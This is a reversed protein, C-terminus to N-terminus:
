RYFKRLVLLLGGHLASMVALSLVLAAAFSLQRRLLLPFVLLFAATPLVMWGISASLRAVQETNGRTEWHLFGLALLSNIPLAVLWGAAVPFKKGLSSAGAVILGAAVAKLLFFEVRRREIREEM